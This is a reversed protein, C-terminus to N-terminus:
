HIVASSQNANIPFLPDIKVAQPFVPYFFDPLRNLIRPDVQQKRESQFIDTIRRRQPGM